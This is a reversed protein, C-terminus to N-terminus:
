DPVSFQFFSGTNHPCMLSLKSFYILNCNLASEWWCGTLVVGNILVKTSDLIYMYLQKIPLFYFSKKNFFFESQLVPAKCSYVLMSVIIGM